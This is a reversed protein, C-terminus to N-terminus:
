TRRRGIVPQSFVAVVGLCLSLLGFAPTFNEIGVAEILLVPMLSWFSGPFIGIIAAFVGIFIFNHIFPVVFCFLAGVLMSCLFIYKRKILNRDAFWGFFVRAVVECGGMIAVGLSVKTKDYGLFKIQSPILILNNGYGNMCLTFAVAYMVFLPNKFLSCKLDPGWSCCGKDKQEKEEKKNVNGNLLRAGDSIRPNKEVDKIQKKQTRLLKPQVFICAAACINFLM